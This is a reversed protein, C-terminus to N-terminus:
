LNGNSAIIACAPEIAWLFYFIDRWFKMINIIQCSLGLFFYTHKLNGSRNPRFNASEITKLRKKFYFVCVGIRVIKEMATM